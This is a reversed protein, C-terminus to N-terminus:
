ENPQDKTLHTDDPECLNNEIALAIRQVQLSARNFRSPVMGLMDCAVATTDEYLQHPSVPILDNRIIRFGHKRLQRIARTIDTSEIDLNRLDVESGRGEVQEARLKLALANAAQLACGLKLKTDATIIEIGTNGVFDVWGEQLVGDILRKVLFGPEGSAHLATDIAVPDSSDTLFVKEGEIVSVTCGAAILGEAAAIIISKEVARRAVLDM